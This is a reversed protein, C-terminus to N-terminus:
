FVGLVNKAFKIKWLLTHEQHKGRHIRQDRQLGEIHQRHESKDDEDADDDVGRDEDDM